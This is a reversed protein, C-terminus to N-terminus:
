GLTDIEFELEKEGWCIFHFCQGVLTIIFDATWRKRGSSQSSFATGPTHGILPLCEENMKTGGQRM